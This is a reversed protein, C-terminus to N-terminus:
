LANTANSRSVRIESIMEPQGFLSPLSEFFYEGADFFVALAM